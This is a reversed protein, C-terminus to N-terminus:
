EMTELFGKYNSLKLLETDITPILIKINWEKCVNLLDDIYGQEDVKCIKKFGDSVHCAPAMIPNSDATYVKNNAGYERVEKIFSRVLSVRQGASTILINIM